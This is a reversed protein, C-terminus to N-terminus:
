AEGGKCHDVCEPGSAGRRDGFRPFPALAGLSAWHWGREVGVSAEVAVEPRASLGAETQRHTLARSCAPSRSGPYKVRQDRNGLPGLRRTLGRRAAFRPM